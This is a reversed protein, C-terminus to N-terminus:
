SVKVLFAKIHQLLLAEAKLNSQTITHMICRQNCDYLSMTQLCSVSCM